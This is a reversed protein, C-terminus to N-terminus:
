KYIGLYQVTNCYRYCGYRVKYCLGFKSIILFANENEHVKNSM